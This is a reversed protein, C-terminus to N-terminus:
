QYPNPACSDDGGWCPNGKPVPIVNPDGRPGGEGFGFRNDCNRICMAWLHNDVGDWSECNIVCQDHLETRTQAHVPMASVAVIAALLFKM